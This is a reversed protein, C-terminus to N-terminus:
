QKCDIPKRTVKPRYRPKLAPSSPPPAPCLTPATPPPAPERITVTHEVPYPVAVVQPDCQSFAGQAGLGGNWVHCDQKNFRMDPGPVAAFASAVAFLGLVVVWGALVLFYFVPRADHYRARAKM